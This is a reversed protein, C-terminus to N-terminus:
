RGGLEVGGSDNVVGTVISGTELSRVRAPRGPTGAHLAVGVSSIRLGGTVFELVVHDGEKFAAPAQVADVHIAAGALLTRRAVKGVAADKSTFHTRLAIDNGYLRREVINDETLLDGARLTVSPVVFVAAVQEAQAAGSTAFVMIALAKISIQRLKSM